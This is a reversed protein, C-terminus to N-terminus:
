KPTLPRCLSIGLAGVGIGLALAPIPLTDLGLAAGWLLAILNHSAHVIMGPIVSGTRWRLAGLVLGIAFTPALKFGLVHAFGFALSSLVIARVPGGRKLLLGMMLGRFLLEEVLGAGVTLLIIGPGEALEGLQEALGRLAAEPLPFAATWSRMALFGAGMTGALALPLSAWSRATTGRLALLERAPLGLLTPALLAPALMFAIQSLLLGALPDAYGLAPSTFFGGSLVIVTVLLAEPGYDGGARRLVTRASPALTPDDAAVARVASTFTLGAGLLTVLVGLLRAELALPEGALARLPLGGPILAGAGPLVHDAVSSGAGLGMVLFTLAVIRAMGAVYDSADHGARVGVASLFLCLVVLEGPSPLDIARGMVASAAAYGASVLVGCLGASALAFGLLALTWEEPRAPGAALTERFGGTRARAAAGVCASMAVLAVASGVAIRGPPPEWAHAPPLEDEAEVVVIRDGAELVGLRALRRQREQQALIRLCPSVSGLKVDENLAVVDIQEGDVRLLVDAVEAPFLPEPWTLWAPLEGVVAVRPPDAPRRACTYAPGTDDPAKLLDLPMVAVGVGLALLLALSLLTEARERGQERLLLGLLTLVRDWRPTRM